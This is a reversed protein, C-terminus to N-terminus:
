EPSLGLSWGWPGVGLVLGLSWGWPGVGLVLVLSLGWLGVGSASVLPRLPWGGPMHVFVPGGGTGVGPV